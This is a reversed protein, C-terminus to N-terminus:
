ITGNGNEGKESKAPRDSEEGRKVEQKYDSLMFSIVSKREDIPSQCFCRDNHCAKMAADCTNYIDCNRAPASIARVVKERLEDAGNCATCLDGFCFSPGGNKSLNGLFLECQVLAECMEASNGINSTSDIPDRAKDSDALADTAYREILEITDKVRCTVNPNRERLEMILDLIWQCATRPSLIGTQHSISSETFSPKLEENIINKIRLCLSTAEIKHAVFDELQEHIKLLAERKTM